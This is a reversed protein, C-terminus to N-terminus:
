MMYYLTDNLFLKRERHVETYSPECAYSSYQYVNNNMPSYLTVSDDYQLVVRSKVYM